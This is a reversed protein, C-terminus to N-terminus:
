NTSHLSLQAPEVGRFLIPDSGPEVLAQAVDHLKINLHQSARRLIVFAQDATIREREMLIGQAQGIIERTLLAAELNRAIETDDEHAQVMTLALGALSALLLARARDVTDFAHSCNAYLVLAGNRGSAVLPVALVNRMGAYIYSWGSQSSRESHVLARTIFM